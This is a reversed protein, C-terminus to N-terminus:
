ERAAAGVAMGVVAAMAAVAARGPIVAMHRGQGDPPGAAEGRFGVFPDADQGGVTLRVRVEPQGVQGQAADRGRDEFGPLVQVPDVDRRVEEVALGQHHRAIVAPAAVDEAIGMQLGRVAGIGIGPQGMQQAHQGTKRRLALQHGGPVQM